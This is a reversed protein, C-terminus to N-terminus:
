RTSGILRNWLNKMRWCLVMWKIRILGLGRAQKPIYRDADRESLLQEAFAVYRKASDTLDFVPLREQYLSLHDAVLNIKEIVDQTGEFLEGGQGVLEPHGGDNLAVAALGCCLAEILSNSCPDTRSATIFLDHERLHQALEQSSVPKIMKINKFSVPSNGVFTMEYKSFDLHEDLYTYVDFGKRPNASWSTAILNTKSSVPTRRENKNFIKSDPANHIVTQYTSTTGFLEGNKKECWSSQFIIGDAILQSWERIMVDVERDKQRILSIPGNLRYLVIKEPHKKKLQWLEHFLSEAGFPYSNILIVDAKEPSPEFVGQRIWTDRLAKLFQNGGGWPEDRLNHLISIKM